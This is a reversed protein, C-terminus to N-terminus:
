KKINGKIKKLHKKAEELTSFRATRSGQKIEYDGNITKKIEM